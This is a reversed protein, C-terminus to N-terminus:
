SKNEEIYDKFYKEIYFFKLKHNLYIDDKSNYLQFLIAEALKKGEEKNCLFLFNNEYPLSILMEMKEVSIGRPNILFEIKKLYFKLLRFLKM